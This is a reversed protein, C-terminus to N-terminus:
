AAPSQDRPHRTGATPVTRRSGGRTTPARTGASPVPLRRCTLDMTDKTRMQEVNRPPIAGSCPFIFKVGGECACANKEDSM